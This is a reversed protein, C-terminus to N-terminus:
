PAGFGEYLSCYSEHLPLLRLSANQRFQPLWSLAGGPWAREGWHSDARGGCIPSTAFSSWRRPTPSRRRTVFLAVHVDNDWDQGIVIAEQVEELQEVQRYVEATGICEGSPNLTADSRGHIIM